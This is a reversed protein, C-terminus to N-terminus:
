KNEGPLIITFTTGSDATSEFTLRGGHAEVAQKVIPLGLGTGSITGVNKARHFHEFLRKQDEEPIGIGRDKIQLSVQRTEYTLEFDIDGGKPSYKIANSLLNTIAQQMLKSDIVVPRNEGTVTFQITHQSTTSQQENIITQCFHTLDVPEANTEISINEARSLMLVDDLLTTLRKVQIQIQSFHHRKKDEVMQDGYKELLGSSSLIVTLPSRFEHSVMSTFRSKLENLERAQELATRMAAEVQKRETVDRVNCVIGEIQNQHATPAFAVDADFTTGDERQCVLELRQSKGTQVVTELTQVLKPANEPSTLILLSREWEDYSYGYLENFAPNIQKIKGDFTAFIIADSSNNLIAEVREKTHQLELTREIVRRELSLRAEEIVNKQDNLTKVLNGLAHSLIGVEDQRDFVPISAATDGQQIADAAKVISLIPQVINRSVRWVIAATILGTVMGSLLVTYQIANATAFAIATDQRVLVVWGLGPYTGIGTSQSYGVLKRGEVFYGSNNELNLPIQALQQDGLLVTGDRSLVLMEISSRDQLPQLISKQVEDAWFWSLHAGLVGVFQGDEDFVPAAVDVFRLPEGTPNPLLSALLVAEHVDGVFPADQANAYWPRQSVDQGELLQGTSATVVGQADTLGIWAYNPYTRQLQDLLSRKSDITISDDRIVDLTALIQIERYREFMGRDLTDTMRFALEAFDNGSQYESVGRLYQGLVVSVFISLLLIIMGVTLGLRIDFHYDPNIARNM